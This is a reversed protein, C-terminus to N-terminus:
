AVRSDDPHSHAALGVNIESSSPAPDPREGAGNNQPPYLQNLRNKYGEPLSQNEMKSKRNQKLMAITVVATTVIDFKQRGTLFYKTDSWFGM